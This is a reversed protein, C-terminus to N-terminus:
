PLTSAIQEFLKVYTQVIPLVFYFISVGSVSLLMLKM